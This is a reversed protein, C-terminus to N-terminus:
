QATKVLKTNKLLTNQQDYVAIMYVGDALPSLDIVTANTIDMLKKGDISSVIARVPQTSTIYVKASVPNPFISIDASNIDTIDTPGTWGTLVYTGSVAQCGNTDTVAVKYNGNGTAPTTATTAGPIAILNKYWQYTVYMGSTYLSMGNFAVPPDPLPVESVSVSTSLVTCGGPVSINCTYDGSAGASYTPSIAGAIPTGNFLWQYGLASGLGSVSTSLLASGGWCFRAPTLAIANPAIIVTVVTDALTMATCGTTANVVQVRYGGSVSAAYSVSNAGPIAVGNRYWQYSLGPAATLAVGSGNCFVLPGGPTITADPLPNVVVSSVASTVTCGTTNTIEVYYNETTTAGYTANTAGPIPGATNYWQYTNGAAAVAAITLTNGQCFTLPGSVTVVDSPSPSISVAVPASVAWCGAANTVRVAYAGAALANYTNGTAGAIPVGGLEWQYTLGTGTNANLAVPTGACTATSGGPVTITATAPAVSVSMPTSLTACGTAISVRLQYSGSVSAIYTPLTAGAIPAGGVFWQYTAGTAISGTLTVFDGPCLVTDGIPTITSVPATIVTVVRTTICGTGLTYTITTTGSAVGTVVGTGSIVTAIATNSSSWTGGASTNTLTITSLPCVSTAGGISAPLPNVTFSRTRFCGNGVTYTINVVGTANGTVVGTAAVVSAIAANSSSWTGGATTNTLTTTLGICVSATGGITNPTALVTVTRTNACGSVTYTITATGTSVGTVVGAVVSAITNDSSSWAGGAPSSTLTTTRGECVTATGAPASPIPNITAIINSYCGNPIIYSITATGAANGTIVGTTEDITAITSNSSAWTGGLTVTSLATTLGVCVVPVGTVAAPSTNVTIDTTIFCGVGLSYTITATGSAVGTVLGGADITAVAIDSSSWTGGATASSLATTRGECVTTTGTIAAVAGVVTVIVTSRCGSAVTYSVEATGASLGTVVGFVDMNIIGAGTFSWAGGAPLCSLPITNGVCVTFGATTTIAAPSTNVTVEATSQCGEPLTYSITTTGATLASVVGTGGVVSAVLPTSSAWVGGASANLLTTANGTCLSLTGLIPGPQPNITVMVTSRCGPLNQYTITATGASVGTLLGSLADITAIATNSSSWSSSPSTVTSTLTTTDGECRSFIGSIPGPGSISIVNVVGVATCTSYTYLITCTDVLLGTIVGTVPDITVVSPNLSTWVGGPVPHTLLGTSGRCINLDGEIDPCQTSVTYNDFYANLVDPGLGVYRVSHNAYFGFHTMAVATYTADTATGELVYGGTAPDAFATPGDDRVYLRWFDTTPDYTVRVSAYNTPSALVPSSTALTTVTGWLGGTYRILRMSGPVGDNYAVAYGDGASQVNPDTCALVVVANDTGSGIGTPLTATRMNFTWRVTFPNLSLTPDFPALYGALPATAYSFGNNTIGLPFSAASVWAALENPTLVVGGVAGGVQVSADSGPTIDSSGGAVTFGAPPFGPIATFDNTYVVTQAAVYSVSLLFMVLMSLCFRLLKNM